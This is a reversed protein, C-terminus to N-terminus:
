RRMKPGTSILGGSPPGSDLGGPPPGEKGALGGAVGVLGLGGAAAGPGRPGAWDPQFMFWNSTTPQRILATMLSKVIPHLRAAAMGVSSIGKAHSGCRVHQLRSCVCQVWSFPPWYYEIQQRLNRMVSSGFLIMVNHQRSERWRPLHLNSTKNSHM